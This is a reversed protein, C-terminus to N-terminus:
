RDVETACQQQTRIGDHEEGASPSSASAVSRMIDSYFARWKERGFNARSNCSSCLTILNSWTCNQKNYDIHHATLRRDRGYCTPNQCVGGDREIIQKSTVKSFDWPYPLRSLGGSWNFNSPGMMEASRLKFSCAKSCCRHRDAHSGFVKYYSGCVECQKTVRNRPALKRGRQSVGVCAMSCYKSAARARPVKYTSRCVECEKSLLGGRWNPNSSGSVILGAANTKMAWLM